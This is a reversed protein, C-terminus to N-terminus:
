RKRSIAAYQDFIAVGRTNPAGTPPSARLNVCRGKTVFFVLIITRDSPSFIEIIREATKICYVRTVSPRVSLRVSPCVSPRVSPIPTAYVRKAYLATARLFVTTSGQYKQYPYQTERSSQIEETLECGQLELDCLFSLIGGLICWFEGNQSLM